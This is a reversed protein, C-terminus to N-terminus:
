LGEMSATPRDEQDALAVYLLIEFFVSNQSPGFKESVAKFM